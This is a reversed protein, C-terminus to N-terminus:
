QSCSQSCLKLCIVNSKCHVSPSLKSPAEIQEARKHGLLRRYLQVAADNDSATNSEAESSLHSPVGLGDNEIGTNGLAVVFFTNLLTCLAALKM